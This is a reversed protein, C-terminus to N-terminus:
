CNVDPLLDNDDLTATKHLRFSPSHFARDSASNKKKLFLPTFPSDFVEEEKGTRFKRISLRPKVFKTDYENYVENFKIQQDKIAVLFRDILIIFQFSLLVNLPMLFRLDMDKVPNHSPYKTRDCEQLIKAFEMNGKPMLNPWKYIENKYLAVRSINPSNPIDLASFLQYIKYSSFLWITNIFSFLALAVELISTFSFRNNLLLDEDTELYEDEKMLQLIIHMINVTSAILIRLHM